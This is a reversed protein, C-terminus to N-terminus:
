KVGKVTADKIGILSIKGKKNTFFELYVPARHKVAFLCEEYVQHDFTAHKGGRHDEINFITWPKGNTEGSKGEYAKTLIVAGEPVVTFGAPINVDKEPAPTLDEQTPEDDERIQEDEVPLSESEDSETADLFDKFHQPLSEDPPIVEAFVDHTEESKRKPMAPSSDLPQYDEVEERIALGKLADAFADRLAWARARMQLMRQPYTQWVGDKKWLGAREADMKSFTRVCPSQNSRIITCTATSTAADYTEEINEFQPHIRAVALAGDGWICPRGNIVAISQLAAMPALGVEAGMGVAILVDGAKGQYNKPVLSSNAMLEAMRMAEDLNSPKLSWTTMSTSSPVLDKKVM